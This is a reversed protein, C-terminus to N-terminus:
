FRAWGPKLPRVTAAGAALPTGAEIDEIRIVALGTGDVASRMEGVEADARTLKTGPPPAIGEIAVPVLRKRVLHRHKMRATVEQGVYCGKAFDVGNLEEFGNELPFSKDAVLDRSGDPVGNAIRLRDYAARSGPALGAAELARAEAEDVIARMGLAALRPDAYVLGRGTRRAAEDAGPGYIAYVSLATAEEITVAARLRYMALRRKLAERREAECDLLLRDGAAVVFFDFLYKGQPTLLAAHVARGDVAGAIDNSVLGQLFTEADAGSLALVARDDLHLLEAM